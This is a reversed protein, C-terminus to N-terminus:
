QEGYFPNLHVLVEKVDPHANMITFKVERIIDHGEQISKEGQVSARVDVLIYHGLKRARLRDVREIGSVSKALEIYSSLLEPDVNREMLADIASSGMTYSTRLILLGVCFGAIPDAYTLLPVHTVRGLLSGGVGFVAAWSGWIDSRHDQALAMLAPSNLSDALRKTYRYLAEKIVLSIIGIYLATQGLGHPPLFLGQTSSYVIYGGAMFLVLSVLSAALDEAKGHGYPHSDDAPRYAITVASLAAISALIDIASHIGDAFLAKSGAWLGVGVKVITLFINAAISVWSAIKAQKDSTM